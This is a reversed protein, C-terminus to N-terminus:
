PPLPFFNFEGSGRGKLEKLGKLRKSAKVGKLQKLIGPADV